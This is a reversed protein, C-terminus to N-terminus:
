IDLLEEVSYTKEEEPQDEDSEDMSDSVLENMRKDFIENIKPVIKDELVKEVYQDMQGTVNLESESIEGLNTKPLIANVGETLLKKQTETLECKHTELSKNLNILRSRVEAVDIAPDYKDKKFEIGAQVLFKDETAKDIIYKEYGEQKMSKALLSTDLGFSKFADFFEGWEKQQVARMNAPIPVSSGELIMIERYTVGTQNPNVKDESVTIVSAGVSCSTLFGNRHKAAIMRAFPDNQEDFYVDVDFVKETQEISGIDMKGIPPRLIGGWAEHNHAWLWVPNLKVRDLRAGDPMIVEGRSDVDNTILRFRIEGKEGDAKLINGTVFHKDM